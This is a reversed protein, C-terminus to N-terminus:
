GALRSTGMPVERPAPSGTYPVPWRIRRSARAQWRSTLATSQGAATATCSRPGTSSRTRKSCPRNVTPATSPCYRAEEVMWDIVAAQDDDIWQPEGPHVVRGLFVSLPIGPACYRLAAQEYYPRDAWAMLSTRHRGPQTAGVAGVAGHVDAGREASATPLGIHAKGTSRSRTARPGRGRAAARAKAPWWTASPGTKFLNWATDNAPTNDRKLTITIPGGSTGPVSTIFTSLLSTTEM